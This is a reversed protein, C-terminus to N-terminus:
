RAVKSREHTAKIEAFDIKLYHRLTKLDAHGLLMQVQVPHAGNALMHTACARRICHITINRSTDALESHIKLMSNLSRHELPKGRSSLWLAHNDLEGKLLRERSTTLYKKLWFLAPGTLPLIREKKGKGMVRINEKELDISFLTLSLLESRRLACSYSVEVLARNRIGLTTTVDIVALLNKMEQQSPVYQLKMERKPTRLKLTPNIFIYGQDELFKFFQKLSRLYIDISNSTMESDILSRVYGELLDIDVEQFRSIECDALYHFFRRLGNRYALLSAHSYKRAELSRLFEEGYDNFVTCYSGALIFFKKKDIYANKVM